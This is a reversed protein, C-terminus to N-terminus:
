RPLRGAGGSCPIYDPARDAPLRPLPAAWGVAPCKGGYERHRVNRRADM